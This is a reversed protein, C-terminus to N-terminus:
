LIRFSTRIARYVIRLWSFCLSTRTTTTSICSNSYIGVKQFSSPFRWWLNWYTLFWPHQAFFPAVLTLELGRSQRVKALVRPILGFPPSAFAQLGDWSQLLADTGASQPDVMPSFYVPLRHNLFTAFLDITAPWRRLLQHSAESCLRYEFGLVQSKRSLSDALM